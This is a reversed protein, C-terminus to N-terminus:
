KKHQQLEPKLMEKIELIISSKFENLDEKTILDINM